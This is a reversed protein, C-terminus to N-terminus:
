SVTEEHAGSRIWVEGDRLPKYAMGHTEFYSVVADIGPSAPHASKFHPAVHFPILGLGEWPTDPAVDVPVAAPDNVIELGHLTPALVAIGGSYGGYVLSDAALAEALAAAFGSRRMTRLLVFANGGRAWVLSVPALLARLAPADGGERLHRRLDLEEAHFGLGDLAALEREVRPRRDAESLLDCANAVVLARRGSGGLAVLDVLRRPRNGLRFSSLYLRM